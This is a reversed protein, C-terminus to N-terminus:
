RLDARPGPGPVLRAVAELHHTSPFLDFGRLGALVYGQEAFVAVDRALAAPDCAVYAVARPRRAVVARVVGARAGTRPPDLVVVDVPRPDDEEELLRQVPGHLLRVQPDDHLNRRADAVARADGEVATVAGGPGVAAALAATLLGAGSYLDLAREGQRPELAQLVAGTLAAGAGPHVQWFGAGTVRFARGDVEERVWTRGSVRQPAGPPRRPGRPPATAVSVGAPLAPLAPSGSRAGPRAPGRGRDAGSRHGSGTPASRGTTERPEAVVLAGSGGGGPVVAEVSRWGTWRRQPLGLEVVGPTAIPCREVPVVRHERHARFGLRGAGDAAYTVRTRWGLGRAADEPSTGTGAPVPVEEVEVDVELGALRQLQERLVATKLRRQAAPAAHQWDCGGCGGPGAVPCAPEVRDASARLVEVADARWYAAGDGAETLRARVREGPLAHRVFVVRGEHRAVCHGGHAVDGVELELLGEEGGSM